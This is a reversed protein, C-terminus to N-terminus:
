VAAQRRNKKARMRLRSYERDFGLNRGWELKQSALRISWFKVFAPAKRLKEKGFQTTPRVQGDYLLRSLLTSEVDAAISLFSFSIARAQMFTTDTITRNIQELAEAMCFSGSVFFPETTTLAIGNIGAVFVFSDSPLVFVVADSLASSDLIAASSTIELVILM